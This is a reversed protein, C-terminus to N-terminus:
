LSQWHGTRASEILAETTRVIDLSDEIPWSPVAEGLLLRSDFGHQRGFTTHRNAALIRLLLRRQAHM